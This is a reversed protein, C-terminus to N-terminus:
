SRLFEYALSLYLVLSLGCVIYHKIQFSKKSVKHHFVKQGIFAGIFGGSFAMAHFSNEPIRTVEGDVEKMALRKDWWYLFPLVLFNLPILAVLWSKALYYFISENIQFGSKYDELSHLSMVILLGILYSASVGIAFWHATLPKFVLKSCARVIFFFIWIYFISIILYNLM